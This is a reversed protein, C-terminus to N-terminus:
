RCNRHSPSPRPRGDSAVAVRVGSPYRGTLCAEDARCRGPARDARRRFPRGRAVAPRKPSPSAVMHNEVTWEQSLPALLDAGRPRRGFGLNRGPRSASSSRVTRDGVVVVSVADTLGAFTPWGIVKVAVTVPPSRGAGTFKEALSFM